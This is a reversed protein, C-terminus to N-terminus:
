EETFLDPAAEIRLHDIRALINPTNYQKLAALASYRLRERMDSQAEVASLDAHEAYEIDIPRDQRREWYAETAFSQVFDLAEDADTHALARLSAGVAGKTELNVLDRPSNLYDIVRPIATENLAGVLFYAANRQARGPADVDLYSLCAPLARTGFAQRFSEERGGFFDMKAIFDRPDLHDALARAHEFPMLDSGFLSDFLQHNVQGHPIKSAIRAANKLRKMDVEPQLYGAEVGPQLYSALTALTWPDASKAWGEALGEPILDGEIANRLVERSLDDPVIANESLATYHERIYPDDAEAIVREARKLTGRRSSALRRKPESLYSLQDPDALLAPDNEIASLAEAALDYHKLGIEAYPRFLATASAAHIAKNGLEVHIRIIEPDYPSYKLFLRANHEEIQAINFRYGTPSRYNGGMVQSIQLDALRVVEPVDVFEETIQRLTAVSLRPPSYLGKVALVYARMSARLDNRALLTDCAALREENNPASKVTAFLEQVDPPLAALDSWEPQLLQRLAHIGAHAFPTILIISISIAICRLIMM